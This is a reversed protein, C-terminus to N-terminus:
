SHHTMRLSRALRFPLALFDFSSRNNKVIKVSRLFPRGMRSRNKADGATGDGARCEVGSYDFM